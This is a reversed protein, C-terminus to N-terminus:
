SGRGDLARTDEELQAAAQEELALAELYVQHAWDREADDSALWVEWARAVDRAANRWQDLHEQRM